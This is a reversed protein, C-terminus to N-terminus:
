HLTKNWIGWCVIAASIPFLEIKGMWKWYGFLKEQQLQRGEWKLDPCVEDIEEPKPKNKQRNDSTQIKTQKNTWPTKQKNNHEKQKITQKNKVHPILTINWDRLAWILYLQGSNGRM